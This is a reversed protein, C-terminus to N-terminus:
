VVEGQGTKLVRVGVVQTSVLQAVVLTQEVRASEHQGRIYTQILHKAKFPM